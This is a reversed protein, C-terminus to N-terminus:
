DSYNVLVHNRFPAMCKLCLFSKRLSCESLQYVCSFNFNCSSDLHSFVCQAHMKHHKQIPDMCHECLSLSIACLNYCLHIFPLIFPFIFVQKHTNSKHQSFNVKMQQSATTLNFNLSSDTFNFVRINSRVFKSMTSSPLSNHHSFVPELGFSCQLPLFMM